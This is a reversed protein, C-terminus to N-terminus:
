LGVSLMRLYIYQVTHGDQLSVGEWGRLTGCRIALMKRPDGGAGERHLLDAGTSGAWLICRWWAGVDGDSEGDKRGGEGVCM